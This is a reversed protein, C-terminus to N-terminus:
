NNGYLIKDMEIDFLFDPNAKMNPMLANIQNIGTMYESEDFRPATFYLYAIQLATELDKPTSNGVCNYGRALPVTYVDDRVQGNVKAKATTTGAYVYFAQGDTLTFDVPVWNDMDFWCDTATEATAASVWSYKAGLAGGTTVIQIFSTGDGAGELAIDSLKLDSGDVKEFVPTFFNYGYSLNYDLYGVVNESAIEGFGM